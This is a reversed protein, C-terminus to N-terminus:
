KFCYTLNMFMTRNEPPVTGMITRNILNRTYSFHTRKVPVQMTLYLFVSFTDFRHENFSLHIKTVNTWHSVRTDPM